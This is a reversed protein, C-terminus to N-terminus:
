YRPVAGPLRTTSQHESHANFSPSFSPAPLLTSATHLHSALQPPLLPILVLMQKLIQREYLMEIVKHFHILNYELKISVGIRGLCMEMRLAAEEWTFAGSAGTRLICVGLSLGNLM